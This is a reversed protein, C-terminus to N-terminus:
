QITHAPLVSLATRSAALATRVLRVNFVFLLATVPATRLTSHVLQACLATLLGQPVTRVQYVRKVLHM